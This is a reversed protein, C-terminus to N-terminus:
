QHAIQRQGSVPGQGLEAALDPAKQVEALLLYPAQSQFRLLILQQKGDFAQWRSRPGGDAFQGCTQLELMVAHSLQHIPQLAATVHCAAGALQISPLHNDPKCGRAAVNQSLERQRM